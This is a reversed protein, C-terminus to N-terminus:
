DMRSEYYEKENEPTLLFRTTELKLDDLTYEADYPIRILPINNDFCYKNKMLDHKRTKRYNFFSIDKFHPEGDFEIIYKKNIFFDFPLYAEDLCDPFKKDYNFEIKNETLLNAIKEENFSRYNNKLIFDEISLPIKKQTCGCGTASSRLTTPFSKGCKPCKCIVVISRNNDIYDTKYLIELGSYTKDQYKTKITGQRNASKFTKKQVCGCSRVSDQITENLIEGVLTNKLRYPRSFKVNKTGCDCDGYWDRGKHETLTIHGVKMGIKLNITDRIEKVKPDSSKLSM